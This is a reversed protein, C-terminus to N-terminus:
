SNVLERYVDLVRAVYLTTEAPVSRERVRQPGANYASLVSELSDFEDSLIRLYQAGGHVNQNANFVDEVGMQAATSPILQMLGSAGKNSVAYPNFRSEVAIVARILRPDLQYQGAAQRAISKIHESEGPLLSQDSPTLVRKEASSPPNKKKLKLLSEIEALSAKERPQNLQAIEAASLPRNWFTVRESAQVVAPTPTGVLSALSGLVVAAFFGSCILLGIKKVMSTRTREDIYM